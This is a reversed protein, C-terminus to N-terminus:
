RSEDSHPFEVADGWDCRRAAKYVDKQARPIAMQEVEDPACLSLLVEGKNVRPTALIRRKASKAPASRVAVLYCLKEDEYNVGASKVLQHDRSRSLRQNFHCWREAARLPCAGAHTCPALVHAGATLLWDRCVLMRRFGEPTGPDVLVLMEGALPWLKALVDSIANVAFEALAYSAVVVDARAVDQLAAPISGETVDVRTSGCERAITRSVDLLARNQDILTMQALTPWTEAAAWSATGPGAGVDLLSTPAFEPCREAAQGLAHRVAAYTAPMRVLAYALADMETRIVASGGQARYTASLREACAALEKRSIGELKDGLAQSVWPPVNM